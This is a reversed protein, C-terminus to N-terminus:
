PNNVPEDTPKQPKLKNVLSCLNQLKADTQGSFEQVSIICAVLKTLNDVHTQNWVQQNNEIHQHIKKYISQIKKKESQHQQICSYLAATECQTQPSNQSLDDKQEPSAKQLPSQDDLAQIFEFATKHSIWSTLLADPGM